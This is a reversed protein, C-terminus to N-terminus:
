LSRLLDAASWEFLPPFKSVKTSYYPRQTIRVIRSGETTPILLNWVSWSGVVSGALGVRRRRAIRGPADLAPSVGEGVSGTGAVTTGRLPSAALFAFTPGM